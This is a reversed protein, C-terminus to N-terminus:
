ESHFSQEWEHELTKWRCEELSEEWFLCFYIEPCFVLRKKMLSQDVAVAPEVMASAFTTSKLM